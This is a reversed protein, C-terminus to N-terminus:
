VLLHFHHSGRSDKDGAAQRSITQGKLLALLSSVGAGEGAGLFFIQQAQGSV